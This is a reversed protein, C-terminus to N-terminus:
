GKDVADHRTFLGFRNLVSNAADILQGAALLVPALDRVHLAGDALAPGDHAISATAVSMSPMKASRVGRIVLNPILIRPALHM